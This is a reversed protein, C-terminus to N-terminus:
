PCFIVSGRFLMGAIPDNIVYLAGAFFPLMLYEYLFFEFISNFHKM